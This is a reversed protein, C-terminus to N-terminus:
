LYGAISGGLQQDGFITIKGPMISPISNTTIINLWYQPLTQDDDDHDESDYVGLTFTGQVTDSLTFQLVFKQGGGNDVM